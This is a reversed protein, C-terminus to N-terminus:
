NEAALVQFGVYIKRPLKVTCSVLCQFYVRCLYVDCFDHGIFTLLELFVCVNHLVFSPTTIYIQQLSQPILMCAALVCM